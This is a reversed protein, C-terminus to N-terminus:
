TSSGSRSRFVGGPGAAFVTDDSALDPSFPFTHPSRAVAPALERVALDGFCRNATVYSIGGNGSRLVGGSDTALWVIGDFAYIPSTTVSTIYGPLPAPM